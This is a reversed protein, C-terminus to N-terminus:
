AADDERKHEQDQSTSRSANGESSQAAVSDNAIHRFQLIGPNETSKNETSGVRAECEMSLRGTEDCINQKVTKTIYPQWLHPSDSKLLLTIGEAALQTLLAQTFLKLNGKDLFREPNELFLYDGQQLLGKILAAIKNTQSDVQAPLDEVLKINRYLKGLSENGLRELYDELTFEKTSSVTSPISDLSINDRLSLNPILPGNEDIFAFRIPGRIRQMKLFTLFQKLTSQSRARQELNQEFYIIEPRPGNWMPKM